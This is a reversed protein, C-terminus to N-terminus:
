KELFILLCIELLSASTIHVSLPISMGVILVFGISEKKRRM